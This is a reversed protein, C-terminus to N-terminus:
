PRAETSRAVQLALNEAEDTIWRRVAAVIEPRSWEALELAGIQISMRWERIHATRTQIAEMRPPHGVWVQAVPRLVPVRVSSMGPTAAHFTVADPNAHRADVELRKDLDRRLEIVSSRLPALANQADDLKRAMTDANREEERLRARLRWPLWNDLFAMAGSRTNASTSM